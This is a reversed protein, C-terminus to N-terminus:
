RVLSLVLNRLEDVECPKRLTFLLPDARDVGPLRDGSAPFTGSMAIIPLGPFDVRLTNIVEIGTMEPMMIDTIVLDYPSLSHMAVADLGNTAVSVRFGCGILLTSIIFRMVPDDDVVLVTPKREARDGAAIPPEHQFTHDAM